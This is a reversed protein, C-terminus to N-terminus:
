TRNGQDPLVLEEGAPIKMLTWSAASGRRRGAAAQLIKLILTARGNTIILRRGINVGATRFEIVYKQRLPSSTRAEHAFSGSCAWLV